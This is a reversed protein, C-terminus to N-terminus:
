IWGLNTTDCEILNWGSKILTMLWLTLSHWVTPWSPWAGAWDLHFKDYFLRLFILLILSQAKLKARPEETNGYLMILVTIINHGLFLFKEFKKMEWFINVINVQIVNFDRLSLSLFWPNCFLKYRTNWEAIILCNDM